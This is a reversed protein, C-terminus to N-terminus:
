TCPQGSAIAVILSLSFGQLNTNPILAYPSRWFKVLTQGSLWERTRPDLEAATTQILWTYPNSTVDAQSAMLASHILPDEYIAIEADNRIAFKPHSPPPAVISGVTQGPRWTVLAVLPVQMLNMLQQLGTLEIRELNQTRQLATLGALMASRVQEQQTNTNQLQWQHSILGLTRAVEQVLTQQSKGWATPETRGM